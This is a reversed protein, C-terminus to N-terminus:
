LLPEKGRFVRHVSVHYGIVLPVFVMSVAMIM